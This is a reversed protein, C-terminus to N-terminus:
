SGSGSVIETIEQTIAAQRARNYYLSLNDIMDSANNTANEMAMRRAGQESAASECMVSFIIGAIYEPIIANFTEESSPEYMIVERGNESPPDPTFPLLQWTTPVQSLVSKFVTGAVHIEDYDGNKYGQCVLRSMEFCDSVSVEGVLPFADSIIERNRKRFYELAKKGVPLFACEKGKTEQEIMRFMNANYGGALGRDGGFVIYLRKKIERKKLYVSDFDSNSNAIDNLTKSLVEYYPRSNEVREQAKRLRSSAVLKMARTIQMTSQVSKIRLKISKMSAM